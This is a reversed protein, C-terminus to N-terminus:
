LDFWPTKPNDHHEKHNGFNYSTLTILNKPLKSNVIVGEEKHVLYTGYYFLQISALLSPFMWFLYLNNPDTIIMNLSFGMTVLIILQNVNLYRKMFKFYWVIPHGDDFDPDKGVVGPYQHHKQHNSSFDELLFGGYFLLSLRGLIQQYLNPNEAHHLDHSIIFLGVYQWILLFVHCVSESVSHFSIDYYMLLSSEHILWSGFLLSNIMNGRLKNEYNVIRNDIHQKHNNLISKNRVHFNSVLNNKVNYNLFNLSNTSIFIIFLLYFFYFKM